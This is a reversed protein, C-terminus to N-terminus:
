LAYLSWALPSSANQICPLGPLSCDAETKALRAKTAPLRALHQDAKQQLKALQEATVKSVHATRM